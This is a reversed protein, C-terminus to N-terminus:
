RKKFLTSTKKLLSGRSDFLSKEIERSNNKTRSEKDRKQRRPEQNRDNQKM